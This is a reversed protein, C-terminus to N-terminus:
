RNSLRISRHVSEPCSQVIGTCETGDQNLRHPSRLGSSCRASQDRPAGDRQEGILVAAAVAVMHVLIILLALRHWRPHLAEWAAWQVAQWPTPHFSLVQGVRPRTTHDRRRFTARWGEPCRTLSVDYGQREMGVM